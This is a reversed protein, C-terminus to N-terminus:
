ICLLQYGVRIDVFLDVSDENAVMELAVRLRLLQDENELPSKDLAFM